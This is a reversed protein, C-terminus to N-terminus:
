IRVLEAIGDIFYPESFPPMALRKASRNFRALNDRVRFLAVGGDQQRFAKFGEFISQGYHLASASPALSMPGYPVIQPASWQGNGYDAILMHDSFISGFPLKDFDVSHVRSTHVREVSIGTSKSLM